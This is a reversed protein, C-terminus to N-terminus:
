AQAEEVNMAQAKGPLASLQSLLDDFSNLLVPFLQRVILHVQVRILHQDQNAAQQMVIVYLLIETVRHEFDQLKAVTGWPQVLKMGEPDLTSYFKHAQEVARRLAVLHVVAQEYQLPYIVLDDRFIQSIFCLVRRRRAIRWYQGNMRERLSWRRRPQGAQHETMVAIRM